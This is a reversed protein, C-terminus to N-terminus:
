IKFVYHHTPFLLKDSSVLQINGSIDLNLACLVMHYMPWPYM